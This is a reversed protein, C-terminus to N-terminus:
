EKKDKKDDDVRPALLLVSDFYPTRIKIPYDDAISIEVKTDPLALLVNQFYSLKFTCIAMPAERTVIKFNEFSICDDTSYERKDNAAREGELLELTFEECFKLTIMEYLEQERDCIDKMDQMWKKMATVDMTFVIPWKLDKPVKPSRLANFGMRGAMMRPHVRYVLCEGERTFEIPFDTGEIWKLLTQIRQNDLAIPSKLVTSCEEGSAKCQFLTTHAPDVAQVLYAEPNETTIPMVIEDTFRHQSEYLHRLFSEKITLVVSKDKGYRGEIEADSMTSGDENYIIM